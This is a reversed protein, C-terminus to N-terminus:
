NCKNHYVDQGYHIISITIIHISDKEIVDEAFCVSRCM